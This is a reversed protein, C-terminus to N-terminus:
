QQVEYGNAAQVSALTGSEMKLLWATAANTDRYRKQLVLGAASHRRSEPLTQLSRLPQPPIVSASVNALARLTTDTPPSWAYPPQSRKRAEITPQQPWPVLDAAVEM